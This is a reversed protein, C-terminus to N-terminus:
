RQIPMYEKVRHVAHYITVAKEIALIAVFFVLLIVNASADAETPPTVGIVELFTLLVLLTLFGEVLADGIGFWIMGTYFYGGGPILISRMRATKEDKFQQGCAACSYIGTSLAAACRPCLQAIGNAATMEGRSADAIRPLLEKLKKKDGRDIRWFKEKKGNLYQLALEASLLGQVKAEKVDGWAVGRWSSRWKWSRAGGFMGPTILFHLLRRNTIVVISATIQYIYWGTTLQQMLSVPAQATFVYLVAEDQQMVKQLHERLQQLAYEARERLKKKEQGSADTYAVDERISIGAAASLRPTANAQLAADNKLM